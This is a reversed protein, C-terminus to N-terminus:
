PTAELLSIELAAAGEVNPIVLLTEPVGIVPVEFVLVGNSPIGLAVPMFDDAGVVRVDERPVFVFGDTSLLTITAMPPTACIGIRCEFTLYVLYFQAGTIPQLPAGSFADVVSQSGDEIAVVQLQGAEYVVPAILVAQPNSPPLTPAPEPTVEPTSETTPVAAVQPPQPAFLNIAGWLVGVIAVGVLSAIVARQQWSM